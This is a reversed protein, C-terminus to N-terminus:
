NKYANVWTGTSDRNAPLDRFDACLAAKLPRMPRCRTSRPLRTPGLPLVQWISQRMAVLQDLWEIVPRGFEGIGYRSPLSTVHMLIGSAHDLMMETEMRLRM